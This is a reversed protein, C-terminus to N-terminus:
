NIENYPNYQPEPTPQPPMDDSVYLEFGIAELPQQIRPAGYSFEINHNSSYWAEHILDKVAKRQTADSIAGDIVTLVKGLRNSNLKDFYQWSDVQYRDFIRRARSTDKIVFEEKSM